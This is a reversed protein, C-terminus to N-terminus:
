LLEKYKYLIESKYPEDFNLKNSLLEGFSSDNDYMITTLLNSLAEASIICHITHVCCDGIQLEINNNDIQTIRIFNAGKNGEIYITNM